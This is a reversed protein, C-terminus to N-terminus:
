EWLILLLIYARSNKKKVFDPWIKKKERNIGFIPNSKIDKYYFPLYRTRNFKRSYEIFSMGWVISWIWGLLLIFATIFQLLAVWSNVLVVKQKTQDKLRVKSCCLVSFGSMLTGSLLLFYWFSAYFFGVFNSWM